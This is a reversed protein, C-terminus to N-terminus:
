APRQRIQGRGIQRAAGSEELQAGLRQGPRREEVGRRRNGGEGVARVRGEDDVIAGVDGRQGQRAADV